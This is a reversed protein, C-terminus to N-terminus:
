RGDAESFGGAKAPAEEVLEAGLAPALEVDDNEVTDATGPEEEQNQKKGFMNDPHLGPHRAIPRRLTAPPQALQTTHPLTTPIEAAPHADAKFAGQTSWDSRAVTPTRSNRRIRAISGTYVRM